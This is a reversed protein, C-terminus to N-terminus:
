LHLNCWPRLWPQLWFQWQGTLSVKTFTCRGGHHRDVVLLWASLRFSLSFSSGRRRQQEVGGENQFLWCVHSGVETEVRTMGRLRWHCELHPLFGFGSSCSVGSIEKCSSEMQLHHLHPHHHNSECHHSNRQQMHYEEGTRYFQFEGRAIYKCTPKYM